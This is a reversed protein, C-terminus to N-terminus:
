VLYERIIKYSVAVCLALFAIFILGSVFLFISFPTTNFNMCWNKYAPKTKNMIPTIIEDIEITETKKM